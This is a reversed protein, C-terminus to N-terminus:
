LVPRGVPMVRLSRRVGTERSSCSGPDEADAVDPAPGDLPHRGGDPFTRHCHSEYELAHLGGARLHVAWGSALLSEAPDGVPAPRSGSHVIPRHRQLFRGRRNPRRQRGGTLQEADVRELHGVLSLEHRHDSGVLSCHSERGEPATRKPPLRDLDTLDPGLWGADDDEHAGSPPVRITSM